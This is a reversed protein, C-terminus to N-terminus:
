QTGEYLGPDGQTAALTVPGTSTSIQVTAGLVPMGGKILRVSLDARFQDDKSANPVQNEVAARALVQLTGSGRGPEAVSDSGCAPALFSSAILLWARNSM